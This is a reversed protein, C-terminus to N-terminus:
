IERVILKFTFTNDLTEITMIRTDFDFNENVIQHSTNLINMICDRSPIAYNNKELYNKIEIDSM